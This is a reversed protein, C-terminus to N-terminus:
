NEIAVAARDGVREALEVDSQDLVRGSEATVLTMAGLTRSAIRMPVVAASRFGVARLLGLHREDRATAALMEESIERYLVAQGSRLVRGLGVQPDLREPEYARLEGALTLRQPDVHAVAGSRRNFDPDVLDVAGWDAIDPVALQAVNRLTEEYDLSSALVEGARALFRSHREARKQDTVDEIVMITAEVEGAADLLPSAKLLNWREAGTDRSITRMLLPEAAEGRLLRVSPIQDMSIEGGQEDVVIYAAMIEAPPTSRLEELSDFGLQDLAAQNAYVIQDAGDRITVPEALSGVVADFRRESGTLAQRLEQLRRERQREGHRRESIDQVFATFTWAGSDRWASITMEVPFEAGDRRVASFEVRRDLIKGRGEALFRRLGSWHDARLRDPIILEAVPRGLAESRAFGFTTEAAPNWYTVVGAEDMSIVANHAHDLIRETRTMQM